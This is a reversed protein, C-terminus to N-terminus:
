GAEAEIAANWTNVAAQLLAHAAARATHDDTHAFDQLLILIEDLDDALETRGATLADIRGAADRQRQDAIEMWNLEGAEQAEIAKVRSGSAEVPYGCKDLAHDIASLEAKATALEIRLREIEDIAGIFVNKGVPTLQMEQLREIYPWSQDAAAKYDTLEDELRQIRDRTGAPHLEHTRLIEVDRDREEASMDRDAMETPDTIEELINAAGTLVHDLPHITWVPTGEPSMDGNDHYWNGKPKM